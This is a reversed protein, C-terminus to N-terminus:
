VQHDVTSLCFVVPVYTVWHNIQTLFPLSSSFYPLYLTYSPHVLLFLRVCLALLILTNGPHLSMIM